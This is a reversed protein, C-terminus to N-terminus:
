NGLLSLIQKAVFLQGAASWHSDEPAYLLDGAAAAPRMADTLSVFEIGADRCFAAFEKELAWPKWAPCPSGAPYTCLDGYVRFKMPVYFVVLRIGQQRCIESARRFTAKTVELRSREYNDLTRTAYFDFFYMRHAVGDRDRFEGFTDIGNPVIPDALQRIELFVNNSLSRNVFERWRRTAPPRPTGVHGSHEYVMANEFNQDDDLDNGEFFFWAVFRPRLPLAFRNLVELEQLTGYGSVGLNVVPRGSLEGLRVAATEEDSVYAGEVYSDGILAIDAHDLTKPNRFGRADTTFSQVNPSRMPLNFAQAMNSRLRGSWHANAPRKYSLNHDEIFDDSPGEWQGTVAARVHSYDIVGAIAPMELILVGVVLSLTTAIARFMARRPDRAACVATGWVAAYIFFLGAAFAPNTLKILSPTAQRGLWITLAWWGAALVWLLGAWTNTRAPLPM